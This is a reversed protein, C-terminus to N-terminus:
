RRRSSAAVSLVSAVLRNEHSRDVVDDLPPSPAAILDIKEGANALLHVPSSNLPSLSACRASARPM